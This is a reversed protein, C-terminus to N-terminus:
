HMKWGAQMVTRWDRDRREGKMRKETQGGGWGCEKEERWDETVRQEGTMMEGSMNGEM